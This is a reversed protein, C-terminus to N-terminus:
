LSVETSLKHRKIFCKFVRWLNSLGLRAKSMKACVCLKYGHLSFSLPHTHTHPLSPVTCYHSKAVFRCKCCQLRELAALNCLLVHIHIKRPPVRVWLAGKCFPAVRGVQRLREGVSVAVQLTRTVNPPQSLRGGGGKWREAM